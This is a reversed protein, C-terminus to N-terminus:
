WRSLLMWVIPLGDGSLGTGDAPDVPITEHYLRLRVQLGRLGGPWREPATPLGPWAVSLRGRRRPCSWATLWSSSKVTAPRARPGRFARGHTMTSPASASSIAAV